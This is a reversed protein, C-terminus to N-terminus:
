PRPVTGKISRKLNGIRRRVQEARRTGPYWVEFKAHLQEVELRLHEPTHPATIELKTIPGDAMILAGLEDGAKESQASPGQDYALFDRLLSSVRPQLVYSARVPPVRRTREAARQFLARMVAPGAESHERLFLRSAETVALPSRVNMDTVEQFPLGPGVLQYWLERMGEGDATAGIQILHSDADLESEWQARLDHVDLWKVPSSTDGGLLDRLSARAYQEFDPLGEVKCSQSFYSSLMLSPPRVSAVVSIARGGWGEGLKAISGEGCYVLNEASIVVRPFDRPVQAILHRWANKLQPELEALHRRRHPTQRSHALADDRMLDVAPLSHNIQHEHAPYFVGFETLEGRAHHLANQITTTGSKPLGIHVVLKM